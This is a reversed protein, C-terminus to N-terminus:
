KEVLWIYLQYGGSIGRGHPLRYVVKHKRVTHVQTTQPLVHVWCSQHPVLLADHSQRVSPFQVASLQLDGEAPVGLQSRGAQSGAVGGREWQRRRGVEQHLRTCTHGKVESWWKSHFFFQEQSCLTYRQGQQKLKSGRQPRKKNQVKCATWLLIAM